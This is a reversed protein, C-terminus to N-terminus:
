VSYHFFSMYTYTETTAQQPSNEKLLFTWLCLIYTSHIHITWFDMMITMKTKRRELHAAGAATNQTQLPCHHIQEWIRKLIVWLFHIPTEWWRNFHVSFSPILFVLLLSFQQLSLQLSSVFLSFAYYYM